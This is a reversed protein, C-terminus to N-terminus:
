ISSLGSAPKEQQAKDPGSNVDFLDPTFPDSPTVKTRSAPSLGFETLYLRYQEMAKNSVAVWPSQVPYGNPTKTFLGQSDPDKKAAKEIAVEAEVYRAWLTCIMALANRDVESVLGYRALEATIRKWEKLAEGKLHKPAKPISTIPRFEDFNLRRKGPNGQLLKLNTPTPKPGAM